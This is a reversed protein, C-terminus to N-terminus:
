ALVELKAIRRIAAGVQMQVSGEAWAGNAFVSLGLLVAASGRGMRRKRRGFM